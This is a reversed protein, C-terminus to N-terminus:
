LSGEGDRARRRGEGDVGGGEILLTPIFGGGVAIVSDPIEDRTQSENAFRECRTRGLGRVCLEQLASM